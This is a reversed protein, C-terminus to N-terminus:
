AGPGPEDAVSDRHGLTEQTLHRLRKWEDDIRTVMEDDSHAGKVVIRVRTTGSEPRIGGSHLEEGTLIIHFDIPYVGDYRRGAIDWYRQVLDARRGSRPPNEIVRKVYYGEESMANTLAIVTEDDPVVAFPDAYSDRNSDEAARDPVVRMAQYRINALSLRFNMDVRTKISAAGSYRRYAGLANYLRVGTVGSLTGQMTATLRGSIEEQSTIRGRFRISLTVSRTKRERDEEGPKAPSLRRLEIWRRGDQSGLVARPQASVDGLIGWSDIEGWSVPFELRLLEIVELRLPKEKDPGFEVWQIDLELGHHDSDPVISPTIWVPGSSTDPEARLEYSRAFKWPSSSPPDLARFVSHDKTDGELPVIPGDIQEGEKIGFKGQLVLRGACYRVTTDQAGSRKRWRWVREQDPGGFTLVMGITGGVSELDTQYEEDQPGLTIEGRLQEILEVDAVKPHLLVPMSRRARTGTRRLLLWAGTVSVGGVALFALGAILSLWVYIVGIATLGAGAVGVALWRRTSGATRVRLHTCDGCHCARVHELGPGGAEHGSLREAWQPSPRVHKACGPRWCHHCLASVHSSGCKYCRVMPARPEVKVEWM